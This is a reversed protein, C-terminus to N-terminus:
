SLVDGSIRSVDACRCSVSGIVAKLKLGSALRSKPAERLRCSKQQSRFNSEILLDQFTILWM